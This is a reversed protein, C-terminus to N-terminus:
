GQENTSAAISYDGDDDYKLEEAFLSVTTLLLVGALLWKNKM